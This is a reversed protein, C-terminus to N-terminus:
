KLASATDVNCLNIQVKNIYKKLDSVHVLPLDNEHAFSLLEKGRAMEGSETLVECIVAAPNLGALRCLEVGAETHGSREKLGRAAARLPFIHGPSIVDEPRAQPSSAKLITHARDSASVGSTVGQAAEISVTFATKTKSQNLHEPVMLPLGLRDVQESTLALCLMGGAKRMMFNIKDAQAFEAPLLLDGENERDEEDVLILMRGQRLHAFIESFSDMM